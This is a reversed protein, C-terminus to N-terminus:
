IKKGEIRPALERFAVTLFKEDGAVTAIAIGAEAVEGTAVGVAEAAIASGNAAAAGDAETGVEATRGKPVGEAINRRSREEATNRRRFSSVFIRTTQPSRGESPGNTERVTCTTDESNSPDAVSPVSRRSWM